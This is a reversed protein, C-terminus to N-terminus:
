SANPRFKPFTARRQAGDRAGEVFPLLVPDDEMERLVPEADADGLLVNPPRSDDPILALDGTWGRLKTMATPRPPPPPPLPVAWGYDDSIYNLLYWVALDPADFRDVWDVIVSRWYSTPRGQFFAEGHLWGRGVHTAYEYLAGSLLGAALAALLTGRLWKKM